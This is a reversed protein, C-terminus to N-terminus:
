VQGPTPHGVFSHCHIFSHIFYGLTKQTRCYLSHLSPLGRAVELAGWSSVVEVGELSPPLQLLLGPLIRPHVPLVSLSIRPSSGAPGYKLKRKKPSRGRGLSPECLFERLPSLATRLCCQSTQVWRRMSSTQLCCGTGAGPWDQSASLDLSIPQISPPEILFQPLFLSPTTPLFIHRPRSSAQEWCLLSYCPQPYPSWDVRISIGPIPNPRPETAHSGQIGGLSDRSEFLHNASGQSLSRPFSVEWLRLPGDCCCNKHLATSLAFCTWAYSIRQRLRSRGRASWSYSSTPLWIPDPAKVTPLYHSATLSSAAGQVRKERRRSSSTSSNRCM